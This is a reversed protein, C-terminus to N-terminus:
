EKSLCDLYPCVGQGASLCGSLSSRCAGQEKFYFSSVHHTLIGLIGSIFTIRHFEIFEIVGNLNENCQDLTLVDFPEVPM